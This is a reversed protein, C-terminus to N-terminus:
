SWGMYNVSLNVSTLFGLKYGKTWEPNIKNEKQGGM